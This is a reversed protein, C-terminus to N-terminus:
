DWDTIGGNEFSLLSLSLSSVATTWDLKTKDNTYREFYVRVTAGSSGTGSLRFIVRSGDSLLFRVGQKQSVSKDVPDVYTFDDGKVSLDAVGLKALAPNTGLSALAAPDAVLKRLADMM